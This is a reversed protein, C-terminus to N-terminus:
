FEPQNQCPGYINYIRFNRGLDASHINAGTHGTGGWSNLLKITRSNYGM